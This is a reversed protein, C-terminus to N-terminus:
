FERYKLISVHISWNPHHMYSRIRSMTAESVREMGKQIVDHIRSHADQVKLPPNRVHTPTPKIHYTVIQVIEWRTTFCSM